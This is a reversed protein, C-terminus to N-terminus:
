RHSNSHCSRHALGVACVFGNREDIVIKGRFLPYEHTLDIKVIVLARSM